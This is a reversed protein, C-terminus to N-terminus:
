HVKGPCMSWQGDSVAVSYVRVRLSVLPNQIGNFCYTGGICSTYTFALVTESLSPLLQVLCCRVPVPDPSGPRGSVRIRGM